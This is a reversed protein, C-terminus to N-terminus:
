FKYRSIQTLFMIIGDAKSLRFQFNECNILIEQEFFAIIFMNSEYIAYFGADINIKLKVEM